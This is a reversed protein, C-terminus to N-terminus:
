NIHMINIIDLKIIQKLYEQNVISAGDWRYDTPITINYTHEKDYDTLKVNVENKCIFPKEEIQKKETETMWPEPYLIDVHPIKSFKVGIYDGEYWDIM